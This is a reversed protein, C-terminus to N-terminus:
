NINIVVITISKNIDEQLYEELYEELSNDLYCLDNEIDLNYVMINRSKLINILMESFTEKYFINYINNNNIRKKDIFIHKYPICKLINM